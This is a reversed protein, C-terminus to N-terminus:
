LISLENCKKKIALMDYWLFKKQTPNRLLYAPHFIARAIYSNPLNVDHWINRLQSIPTDVQLVNQASKSGVLIVMKPNVLEMIKQLFPYCIALENNSPNRNGPPRWFVCNTIFSNERTIGIDEFAKSLLIGSRGVFPKGIEDEEAGPAEGIILIKAGYNGDGFVTNIATKKLECEEFKLLCEKLEDLNKIHSLDIKNQNNHVYSPSTKKNLNNKIPQSLEKTHFGHEKDDNKPLQSIQSPLIASKDLIKENISFYKADQHFFYEIGLIDYLQSLKQLKFKESDEM